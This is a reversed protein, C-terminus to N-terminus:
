LWRWALRALWSRRVGTCGCLHCESGQRFHVTEGHGCRCFKMGGGGDSSDRRPHAATGGHTMAPNVPGPNRGRQRRRVRRGGRRGSGSWEEGEPSRLWAIIDASM